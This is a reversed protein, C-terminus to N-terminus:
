RTILLDETMSINYYKRWRSYDLDAKSQRLRKKVLRDFGLENWLAEAAFRVGYEKARLLRGDSAFTLSKEGAVRLLGNVIKKADNKLSKINGLHAIVRQKQRGGERYSEVIRVYEEMKGSSTKVKVTRIFAMAEEGAITM